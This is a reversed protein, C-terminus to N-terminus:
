PFVHTVILGQPLVHTGVQDICQENEHQRSEDSKFDDAVDRRQQVSRQHRQGVGKSAMATTPAITSTPSFFLVNAVTSPTMAITAAVLLTTPPNKMVSRMSLINLDLRGVCAATLSAM